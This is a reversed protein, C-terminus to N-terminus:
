SIVMALLSFLLVRANMYVVRECETRSSGDPPDNMAPNYHLLIDIVTCIYVVLPLLHLSTVFISM